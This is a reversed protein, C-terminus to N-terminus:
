SPPARGSRGSRARRDATRAREAGVAEAAAVGALRQAAEELGVGGVDLDGHEGRQGVLAVTSRSATASAMSRWSTSGSVASGRVRQAGPLAAPRWPQRGVMGMVPSGAASWSSIVSGSARSIPMSSSWCTGISHAKLPGAVSLSRRPPWSSAVAMAAMSGSSARPPTRAGLRRQVAVRRGHGAAGVVQALEQDLM